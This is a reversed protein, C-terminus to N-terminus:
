FYWQFIEGQDIKKRLTHQINQALDWFYTNKTFSYFTMLSTALVTMNEQNISPHLRRRLDLHSLCSIQIKNENKKM